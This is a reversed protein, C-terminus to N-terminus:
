EPHVRGATIARACGRGLAVVADRGCSELRVFALSGGGWFHDGFQLLQISFYPFFNVGRPGIPPSAQAISPRNVNRVGVDLNNSLYAPDLIASLGSLAARAPKAERM